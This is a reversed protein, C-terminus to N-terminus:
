AASRGNVLNDWTEGVTLGCPNVSGMGTIVVRRRNYSSM